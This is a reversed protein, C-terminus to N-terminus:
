KLWYYDDTEIILKANKAKYETPTFSIIFNTPNAGYANLEGSTPNVLIYYLISM